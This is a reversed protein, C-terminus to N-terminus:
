QLLGNAQLDDIVQNVLQKLNSVDARVNNMEAVLTAGNDNITTDDGTGSVANITTTATGLTGDTLTSQSQNNHTRTTSSYTQTYATPRTVPTVGYFGVTTGDHNLAGDLEIDSRARVTGNVDFLATPSTTDIGVAYSGSLGGGSLYLLNNTGYTGNTIVRFRIAADHTGSTPDEWLTEWASATRLVNSGDHLQYLLGSGFGAVPTASTTHNITVSNTINNTGADAEAFTTPVSFSASGNRVYFKTAYNHMVTFWGATGYINITLDDNNFLTEMWIGSGDDRVRLGDSTSTGTAALLMTKQSDNGGVFLRGTSDADLVGYAAATSDYQRFTRYSQNSGANFIFSSSGGHTVVLERAANMPFTIGRTSAPTFTHMSSTMTLTLAAGATHGHLYITRNTADSPLVSFAGSANTRMVTTEVGPGLDRLTLDSELAKIGLEDTWVVLTDPNTVADIKLLQGSSGPAVRWWSRGPLNGAVLDGSATPNQPYAM